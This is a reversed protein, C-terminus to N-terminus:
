IIRQYLLQQKEPCFGTVESIEQIRFQEMFVICHMGSLMKLVDEKRYDSEYKVYDALKDLAQVSDKGHVTALCQHGTYCANLFYLAEGGKIEGIVFYDLDTLLGNRALEKLHYSVRGEGQPQVVHQFMLDPHTKSFLEENEQIVLGSKEEPICDLLANLLTTKGSAGKGAILIGSSNKVQEKLYRLTEESMMGLMQLQELTYKEKPIKRIHLYPVNVSNVFETSINFRLIFKSNSNKDTFTSLAHIDSISTKNKAAVYEM